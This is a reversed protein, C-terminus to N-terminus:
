IRDKLEALERCLKDFSPCRERVLGLDMQKTLRPMDATESYHGQFHEKVWLKGRGELEATEVVGGGLNSFENPMADASAVFWTEFEKNAIVCFLPSQVGSAAAMELVQKALICPLDADADFLVLIARKAYKQEQGLKLEALKLYRILEKEKLIKGKPVRLPRPVHIYNGGLLESWVRQLLTRIAEVEGHGEVIPLICYNDM